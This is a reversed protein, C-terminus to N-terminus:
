SDTQLDSEAISHRVLWAAAAESLTTTEAKLVVADTVSSREKSAAKLRVVALTGVKPGAKTTTLPQANPADSKEPLTRSPRVLQSADSHVESDAIDVMEARAAPVSCVTMM